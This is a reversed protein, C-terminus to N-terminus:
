CGDRRAGTESVPAFGGFLREADEFMAHLPALPNVGGSVGMGQLVSYIVGIPAPTVVTERGASTPLSKVFWAVIMSAELAASCQPGIDEFVPTALVVEAQDGQSTGLHGSPTQARGADELKMAYLMAADYYLLDLALRPPDCELCPGESDNGPLVRVAGPHAADWDRRWARLAASLEIVKGLCSAADGTRALDEAIGPMDVFIDMLRDEFSKPIYKWPVTKWEDGELLCHTRKSLSQCILLSRCSRLVQLLGHEQFVEPGCHRLVGRIGLHHPPIELASPNDVVFEYFGMMIMTIVLQALDQKTSVGLLSWVQRLVQGYLQTGRELLVVDGRKMGMYGYMIAQYCLQNMAPMGGRVAWTLTRRWFPAWAYTSFFFTAAMDDRFASIGLDPPVAISVRILRSASRPTSAPTRVTALRGDEIGMIHMRLQTDYGDCRYGASTCRKCAPRARDCKVRRRRCTECYGSTPQRGM